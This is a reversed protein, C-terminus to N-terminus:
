GSISDNKEDNQLDGDNITDLNELKKKVKECVEEEITGSVFVIKQISKTKGNERWIRGTAQRMLVASYCPSILSTRPYNGHQDHLSLGAGGSQINVIIIREKDAQFADVNKIKDDESISGNVICKTQFREALANISATFNLFVVVSMGAELSEEIIEIFIPIKMLEIKERARIIATLRNVSDKSEKKIKKNLIALEKQMEAYIDNIKNTSEDEMSYCEADIQTEPFNPVTDRTLRIGRNVFIDKHLKDLVQKSGNFEFGFRGRTVGHSYLWDYYQKNNDFLGISMGVTKLELPNTANTASCFLMKYGQKLASLCTESNKTKPNKLKQSEDWVILTSKPIKWTFENRRTDRKKVYSAIDSSTKGLRLSEYNIVGVLRGNMKFHNKIVRRWSEMVAKPCVVLIDMNLERAVGCATFTKGIGMDSGDIACGWKDIAACIKGVAQVQWPRLGDKNKIEIPKLEFVENETSKSVVNFGKANKTTQILFWDAEKKTVSYGQQKLLFGKSKWYAFFQSRINVPLLWERKWIDKGNIETVKYPPLWEIKLDSFM